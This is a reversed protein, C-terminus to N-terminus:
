AFRRVTELMRDLDRLFSLVEAELEAIRKEDRQVRVKFLRMKEPLRPDFSVFEAWQRGTCALQWMVQPEYKSPLAGDMLYQLHTATKPCKIELVGDLRGPRRTVRGRARHDPADGARGQRGAGGARGRLCLAGFPEYEVGWRMEDNMYGDDQPQGTLIEVVLQSRYDRRAAAEGTKIKAVVDCMRSATVLGARAARWEESGQPFDIIKMRRLPPNAAQGEGRHDIWRRKTTWRRRPATPPRSRKQLDEVNASESISAIFDAVLKEPMAKDAHQDPRGEEDEGTEIDLLKLVAYKKAYSLAKGPAKDGHDLAHAEIEISFKDTPDDANVV